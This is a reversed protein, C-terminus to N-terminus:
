SFIKTKNQKKKQLNLEPKYFSYQSITKENFACFNGGCRKQLILLSLIFDKSSSGEENPTLVTKNM